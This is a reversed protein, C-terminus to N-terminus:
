LYKLSMFNNNIFSSIEEYLMEAGKENVHLYDPLYTTRNWMNIGARRLDICSVGFYDCAEKYVELYLDLKTNKDANTTIYPLIVIVKSTTYKKLIRILMTRVGDAFTNTPLAAVQEDTYGTPDETNFTGLSSNANNIDNTGGFIFIIDPIGNDGLHDIRNQMSLPPIDSRVNSITTGRWSENIGLRFGFNDILRKFWTKDVDTFLNDQPYRCLNNPYTWVGGYNDQPDTHEETATGFTSLSDGLISILKPIYQTQTFVFVNQLAASADIIDTNDSKRINFRTRYPRDFVYSSSWSYYTDLKNGNEDVIIPAIQYDNTCYIALCNDIFGSHLRNQAVTTVNMSQNISNYTPYLLTRQILGYSKQILQQAYSSYVISVKDYADDAFLIDEDNSKRLNIRVLFSAFESPIIVTSNRWSWLTTNINGFSDYLLVAIEYGEAPIISNVNAIINSHVRKPTNTINGTASIGGQFFEIRNSGITDIMDLKHKETNAIITVSAACDEITRGSNTSLAFQLRINQCELTTANTSAPLYGLYKGNNDYTLIACPITTPYVGLVNHIIQSHAYGLSIPEVIKYGDSISSDTEIRGYSLLVKNCFEGFSKDQNNLKTELATETNTLDNIDVFEYYLVKGEQIRASIRLYEIPGYADPITFRYQNSLVFWESNNTFITRESTENISKIYVGFYTPSDQFITKDSIYLVYRNGAIANLKLSCVGVSNFVLKGSINNNCTNWNNNTNWDNINNGIFQETHWGDVLLYTIWLGARRNGISVAGRADLISNFTHGTESLNIVSVPGLTQWNSDSTWGTNPNGGIFQEQIWTSSDGYLYTICLGRTRFGVSVDGRAAAQTGYPIPSNHIQNVNLFDNNIQESLLSKLTVGSSDVVAETTTIPYFLVSSDTVHRDYLQIIDSSNAM